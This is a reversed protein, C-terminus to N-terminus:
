AARRESNVNLLNLSKLDRSNLQRRTRRLPKEFYREALASWWMEYKQEGLEYWFGDEREYETGNIKIREDPATVPGQVTHTVTQAPAKPAVRLAGDDPDAYFESRYGSTFPVVHSGGNRVFSQNYSLVDEVYFVNEEVLECFFRKIDRIWRTQRNGFQALGEAKVDDWRRGVNSRLFRRLHSCNWNGEFKREGWSLMSKQSVKNPLDVEGEKDFQKM